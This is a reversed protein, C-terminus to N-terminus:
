SSVGFHLLICYFAHTTLLPVLAQGEEEGKESPFFSPAVMAEHTSLLQYMLIHVTGDGTMIGGHSFGEDIM